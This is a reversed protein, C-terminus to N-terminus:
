ATASTKETFSQSLKLQGGFTENEGVGTGDWIFELVCYFNDTHAIADDNKKVEYEVTGSTTTGDGSTALTFKEETDVPKEAKYESAVYGNVKLGPLAYKTTDSSDTSSASLTVNLTLTGELTKSVKPTLVVCKYQAVGAQLESVEAAISNQTEENTSWQLYIAKDAGKSATTKADDGLKLAFATGVGGALGLIMLGVLFKQHKKM